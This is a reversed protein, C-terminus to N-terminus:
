GKHLNREEPYNEAAPSWNEPYYGKKSCTGCIESSDVQSPSPSVSRTRIGNVHCRAMQRCIENM